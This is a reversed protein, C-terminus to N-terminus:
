NLRSVAVLSILYHSNHALVLSYEPEWDESLRDGRLAANLETLESM